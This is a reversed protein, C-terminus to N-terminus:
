SAHKGRAPPQSVAFSLEPAVFFRGCNPISPREGPSCSFASTNSRGEPASLDLPVRDWSEAESWGPSNEQTGEPFKVVRTATALPEGDIKLATPCPLTNWGSAHFYLRPDKTARAGWSCLGMRPSGTREEPHCRQPPLLTSNERCMKRSPRGTVGAVFVQQQPGRRPSRREPHCFMLTFSILQPGSESEM